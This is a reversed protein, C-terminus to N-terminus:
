SATQSNRQRRRLPYVAHRPVFAREGPMLLRYDKLTTTEIAEIRYWWLLRGVIKVTYENTGYWSRLILRGLEADTSSSSM